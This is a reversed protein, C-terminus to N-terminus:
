TKNEFCVVFDKSLKSFGEQFQQITSRCYLMEFIINQHIQDVPSSRSHGLSANLLCGGQLFEM